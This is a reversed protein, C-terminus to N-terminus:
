TKMLCYIGKLYDYYLLFMDSYYLFIQKIVPQTKNAAPSLFHKENKLLLLSFYANTVCNRFVETHFNQFYKIQM